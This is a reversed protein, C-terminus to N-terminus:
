VFVLLRSFLVIIFIELALAVLIVGRNNQKKIVNSIVMASAMVALVLLLRVALGLCLFGWISINKVIYQALSLKYIGKGLMDGVFTLSCLPADLYPM